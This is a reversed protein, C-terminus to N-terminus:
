KRRERRAETAKWESGIPCSTRHQGLLQLEALSAGAVLHHARQRWESAVEVKVNLERLL